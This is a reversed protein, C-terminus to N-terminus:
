NMEKGLTKKPWGVEKLEKLAYGKRPIVLCVGLEKLRALAYGDLLKNLAVGNKSTKKARGSKNPNAIAKTSNTQPM